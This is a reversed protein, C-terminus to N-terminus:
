DELLQKLSSVSTNVIPIADFRGQMYGKEADMNERFGKFDYLSYVETSGDDKKNVFLIQDKRLRSTDILNTNHSTFLLQSRDSAHILDLIFDALLTHLSLDFEDLMLSKGKKVVDLLRLLIGFLQRTGHSEEVEMDFSVKPAFKHYTVFKIFDVDQIQQTPIKGTTLAFTINQAKEKRLEIDCIDSDCVNLAKLVIEKHNVFLEEISQDSLPVLGLLFTNLFYQFIKKAFERNMSSARSLFLNKRSTNIAVDKPRPVTGEAFSYNEGERKFIKARRKNPYYYLSEKIIETRTLSFSYEYEIDDCVFDILFRSPKKECGDFKFPQFNFVTNENHLHSEFILHACFSVAKVINSKGSANPGFLGISKLVKQGNWEYVNNVLERAQVTNINGARFDISVTEKISFFNELEIKLLMIINNKFIKQLFVFYFRFYLNKM